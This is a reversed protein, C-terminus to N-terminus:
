LKQQLRTGMDDIQELTAERIFNDEEYSKDVKVVLIRKEYLTGKSAELLKNIKEEDTFADNDQIENLIDNYEKKKDSIKKAKRRKVVKVSYSRPGANAVFPTNRLKEMIDLETVIADEIMKQKKTVLKLHKKFESSILLIKTHETITDSLITSHKNVEAELAVSKRREMEEQRKQDINERRKVEYDIETVSKHYAPDDQSIQPQEYQKDQQRPQVYQNRAYQPRTNYQQQANQHQDYVQNNVQSM